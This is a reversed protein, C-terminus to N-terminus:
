AKKGIKIFPKEIYKNMLASLIFTGTLVFFLMAIFMNEEGLRFAIKDYKDMFVTTFLYHSLYVCYSIEGLWILPKINLIHQAKPSNIIFWLIGFSGLGTIFFYDLFLINDSINQIFKPLTIFEV